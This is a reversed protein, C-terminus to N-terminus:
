SWNLKDQPCTGPDRIEYIGSVQLFLLWVFFPGSILYRRWLRVPDGCLRWFWELGIAQVVQPPEKQLGSEYDFAAGVAIGPRRIEQLNEFLWSEQRPSGLGVMVIDANSDKIQQVIVDNEASTVREYNGGRHGVIRLGPYRVPLVQLLIDLAEQRGGFLYVSLNEAAATKLVARMLNHGRIRGYSRKKTLYRAMLFVPLGDTLCWRFSNLRYRFDTNHIASVVTHMAVLAVCLEEQLRAASVIEAIVEDMTTLRVRVGVVNSTQTGQAVVAM